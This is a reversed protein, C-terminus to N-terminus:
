YIAMPRVVIAPGHLRFDAGARPGLLPGFRSILDELGKAEIARRTVRTAGSLLWSEIPVEQGASILREVSGFITVEGALSEVSNTRFFYQPDVAFYISAEAAGALEFLQPVTVAETMLLPAIDQPTTQGGSVAIAPLIKSLVAGIESAVTVEPVGELEVFSGKSFAGDRAVVDGAAEVADIADNLLRLPTLREEYSATRESASEKEGDVGVDLVKVGARGSRSSTRGETIQTDGTRLGYYDAANQLLEQDLYVPNRMAM